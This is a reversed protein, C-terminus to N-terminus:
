SFFNRISSYKCQEKGMLCVHTDENGFRSSEVASGRHPQKGTRRYYTFRPCSVISFAHIRPSDETPSWDTEVFDDLDFWFDRLANDTDSDLISQYKSERPVGELDILDKSQDAFSALIACLQLDTVKVEVAYFPKHRIKKTKDFAAGPVIAEQERQHMDAEFSNVLAKVGVCHTMGESWSERSEDM